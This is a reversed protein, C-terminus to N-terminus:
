KNYLADERWNLPDIKISQNEAREVMALFWKMFSTDKRLPLYLTGSPKSDETKSSNESNTMLLGLLFGALFKFTHRMLFRDGSHV